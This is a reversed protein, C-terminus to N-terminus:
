RNLFEPRFHQRVLLMAQTRAEPTNGMELLFDSGINSTMIVITNAFSVVNGKSDTLRGDDLVSLLVNM